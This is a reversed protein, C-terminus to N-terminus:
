GALLGLLRAALRDPLGPDGASAARATEAAARCAARDGLMRDLWGLMAAEDDLVALGGADALRDVDEDFNQMRPGAALACGLRAPELPNHGGGPGEAEVLSNGILVPGALRYLLGLEGLTDCIWISADPGPDEGRGRRRADPALCALEAGRAPHRPAIMTLLRDHRRALQSHLRVIVTEEGPHTSAALWVPRDGILARLRGLEVEDVPLPEAGQKLDRDHTVGRAGLARLRGADQESRASIWAFAGLLRRAVSAVRAWRRASGLSLRANLLALPVARRVCGAILTPWLESEVLVALDPRWHDLFRGIWAPVDLPVFRVLVRDALGAASVREVALTQATVTGTTLLLTIAPDQRCLATFLPLLSMTEGVSAAHLWVLRGDPRPTGDVGRREGLRGAIEKGYRLRRRLMWRLGPSALTGVVGWLVFPAGLRRGQARDTPGTM